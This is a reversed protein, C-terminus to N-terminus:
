LKVEVSGESKQVFLLNQQGSSGIKFQWLVVLKIFFFASQSYEESNTKSKQDQTTLFQTKLVLQFLCISSLASSLESRIEKSTLPTVADYPLYCVDLTFQLWLASSATKQTAPINLLTPPSPQGTVRYRLRFFVRTNPYISAVLHM